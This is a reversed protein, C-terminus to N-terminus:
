KMKYLNRIKHLISNVSYELFLRKKAALKHWRLKAGSYFMNKLYFLRSFMRAM